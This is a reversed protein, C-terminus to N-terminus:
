KLLKQLPQCSLNLSKAVAECTIIGKHINVGKYLSADDRAAKEIGSNAIKVAYPITTNTLAFTSTRAVAGPMNAVCYHLVGHKKFTPDDHTTPKVTEVCGGQDVAVDVIVSGEHMRAVLEERVLIPARAGAILVAGVVLDAELVSEEINHHDSFLTQIRSGFVDDLYALKSLNVDLITVKAGMGVAIKAANMGVVGAGIIAVSGRKVGPVGGLLIGRGGHEKELFSAGVQIAMRGAIESMPMLLPLSGDQLQITEYAVASVKSNVLEGTLIAEPALHFYTFIILNERFFKYESPLPEKVKMIMGAKNWIEAASNAVVAGAAIYDKDPIGAGVGAGTEVLVEHGNDRLTKVGSPVIGVRYERTKIEKPIGILM